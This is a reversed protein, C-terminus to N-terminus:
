LLIPNRTVRQPNRAFLAYRLPGLAYPLVASLQLHLLIALTASLNPQNTSLTSIVDHKYM